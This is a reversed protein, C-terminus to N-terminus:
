EWDVEDFSEHDRLHSESLPRKRRKRCVYLFSADQIGVDQICKEFTAIDNLFFIDRERCHLGTCQIYPTDGRGYAINLESFSTKYKEILHILRLQATMTRMNLLIM